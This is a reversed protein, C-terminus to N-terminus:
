LDKNAHSVNWINVNGFCISYVIFLLSIFLFCYVNCVCFYYFLISM